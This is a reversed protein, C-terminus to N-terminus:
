SFDNYGKGRNISFSKNKVQQMPKHCNGCFVPEYNNEPKILIKQERCINCRYTKFTLKMQTKLNFFKQLKM